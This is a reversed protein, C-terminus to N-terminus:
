TRNSFKMYEWVMHLQYTHLLHIGLHTFMFNYPIDCLSQISIYTRSASFEYRKICDKFYIFAITEELNYPVSTKVSLKM